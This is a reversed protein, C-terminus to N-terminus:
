KFVDKRRHYSAMFHVLYYLFSLVLTWIWVSSSAGSSRADHRMKEEVPTMFVLLQDCFCFLDIQASPLKKYVVM